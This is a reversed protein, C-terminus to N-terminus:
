KDESEHLLPNDLCYLDVSQEKGKIPRAGLHLFKWPEKSANKVEESFICSAPLVRTLRELSQARNVANGLLTYDMKIVSGVNGQIVEGYDIGIGAFLQSEPADDSAEARIAALQEQLYVAAHLAQDVQNEDFHAMVCDGIYKTVEGGHLTIATTALNLYLNILRIADDVKYRQSIGSFGKIDAFLIAKMTRQPVLELPDLGQVIKNIVAPQTYKGIIRHSQMLQQLLVKVPQFLMDGKVNLNVTHMYRGPFLRDRVRDENILCVVDEHRPDKKISEFLGDIIHDDGELIQFFTKDLCLLVGTIGRANNRANSQKGLVDIEQDSIPRSFSSMYILRKM